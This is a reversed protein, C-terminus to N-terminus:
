TERSLIQNSVMVGSQMVGAIGGAPKTWAGSLFLNEIVTSQEMRNSGSQSQIQSWGYIAGKYNGTYREMTRPTAIEIKEIYSSLNPVVCEARKILIDAMERKKRKYGERDLNKWFDYGVITVINMTDKKESIDAKELSGHFSMEMPIENMNNNICAVYQSTLDYSHNLFISYDAIGSEKLCTNLGMYVHFASLSPEMISIKELFSAPLYEKGVLSYFTTPANVNSIIIDAFFEDGKKTKVGYAIRNKILIQKVANCFVVTGGNENIVETLANAITQGGGRPYYGGNYIFDCWSSLFVIFPLQQPPVGIFPWLQAIIASLKENIFFSDFVEQCTKNVYDTFDAPSIKDDDTNHIRNFIRYMLNFLEKIKSKETPFFSGLIDIFADPNCQPVKIDFDPFISRYLHTPKLFKIRKDIGCAELFKYSVKGKGFGNLIHLSADFEFGGRKFNVSYGGPIHVRELVLVKKGNRALSAGASLGGIGAGIIIVDYKSSM